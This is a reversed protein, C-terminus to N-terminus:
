RRGGVMTRKAACVPNLFIGYYPYYIMNFMFALSAWALSEIESRGLSKNLCYSLNAAGYGYLLFCVISIISSILFFTSIYPRPSPRSQFKEITPKDLVAKGLNVFAESINSIYQTLGM